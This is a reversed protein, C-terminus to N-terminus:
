LRRWYAPRELSGLQGFPPGATSGGHGVGQQGHACVGSWGAPLWDSILVEDSGAEGIVRAAIVM